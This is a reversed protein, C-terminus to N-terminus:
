SGQAQVAKVFTDDIFQSPKATKAKAVGHAALYNLTNQVAQADPTMNSPFYKVYTNYAYKLLAPQSLKTYKTIEAESVSPHAKIYTVAQELSRIYAEVVKAHQTAWEKQVVVWGSPYNYHIAPLNGVDHFGMQQAELTFPPDLIVAQAAGKKLAAMEGPISGLHTLTVNKGPTLGAHQLLVVAAINTAAGPGTDGVVKGKLDQIDAISKNAYLYFLTADVPMAVTVVDAGSFDATVAKDVVIHLFQVQGSLLAAMSNTAANAAVMNVKLGNKAFIGEDEAIWMPLFSASPATWVATVPTLSAGSSGSAAATTAAPKSSGGAVTAKSSGTSASGCGAAVLAVALAAAARRGRRLAPGLRGMGGVM